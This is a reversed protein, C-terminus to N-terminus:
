YDRRREKPGFTDYLERHSIKCGTSLEVAKLRFREALRGSHWAMEAWAMQRDCMGYRKQLVSKDFWAPKERNIAEAEAALAAERTAHKEITISAIRSFWASRDKHQRLRVLADYSIGVYLLRGDADFHRYLETEM